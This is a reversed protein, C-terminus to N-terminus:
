LLGCYFVTAKRDGSNALYRISNLTCSRVSNVIGFAILIFISANCYVHLPFAKLLIILILSSVQGISHCLGLAPRFPLLLLGPGGGHQHQADRLVAHMEIHHALLKEYLSIEQAINHAEYIMDM